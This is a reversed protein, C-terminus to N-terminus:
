VNVIFTFLNQPLILQPSTVQEQQRELKNSLHQREAEGDAHERRNQEKLQEVHKRLDDNVLELARQGDVERKEKQRVHEFEKELEALRSRCSLLQSHQEDMNHHCQSLEADLENNSTELAEVNEQLSRNREELRSLEQM